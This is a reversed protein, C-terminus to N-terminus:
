HNNENTMWDEELVCIVMSAIMVVIAIGNVDGNGGPKCDNVWWAFVMTAFCITMLVGLIIRYINKNTVNM